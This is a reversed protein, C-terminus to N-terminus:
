PVESCEGLLFWITRPPSFSRFYASINLVESQPIMTVASNLFGTSFFVDTSIVVVRV